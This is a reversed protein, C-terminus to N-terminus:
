ADVIASGLAGTLETMRAEWGESAIFDRLAMECTGWEKDLTAGAIINYDREDGSGCGGAVYNNMAVTYTASDDLNGGGVLKFETIRSGEAANWDVTLQAGGLVLVNGSNSPWKYKDTAETYAQSLPTGKAVADKVYAEQSNYSKRNEVMIGVSREMAERLQAGTLKRTELTNGYPSVSLINNYTVEGEPIGDRIGGANEIALDAGTAALYSATVVHGIPEDRTRLWEWSLKLEDITQADANRFPYDYNQGSAGVREDLTAKEENEVTAILEDTAADSLKSGADYDVLTDSSDISDWTGNGDPNNLTLSLTGIDKFYNYAEVLAVGRGDKDTVLGDDSVSTNDIQIHQHGAIVADLGSTQAVLQQPDQYHTLAIVVDCDLEDRLTAAMENARQAPDSFDVNEVYNAPATEHFRQDIVGFIGVRVVTGEDSVVDRVLYNNKFYANGDKDTINAGLISFTHNKDIEQLRTDGYSWDHNGPTTADVGVEDMLRAISEGKAVTAFSQGHFTDGADLLLHPKQQDKLAKLASFGIAKNYSDDKYYGHIDNIHMFHLNATAPLKRKYGTMTATLAITKGDYPVNATASATVDYDYKSPTANEEGEALATATPVAFVGGALAVACLLVLYTSGGRRGHRVVVVGAAVVILGEVCLLGVSMSPDATSALSQKTTTSTGTAEPAGSANSSSSTNPAPSADRELYVDLTQSSGVGMKAVTTQTNGSAHWGEPVTASLSVDRLPENSANTGTVVAHAKEGAAYSDKDFAVSVKLTDDAQATSGQEDARAMGPCLAFLAILLGLTTALIRGLTSNQRQGAHKGNM